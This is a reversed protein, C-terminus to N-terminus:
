KFRLRLLKKIREWMIRRLTWCIKKAQEPDIDVYMYEGFTFERNIVERPFYFIGNDGITDGNSLQAVLYWEGKGTRLPCDPQHGGTATFNECNCRSIFKQGYLKFAHPYMVTGKEKPIIGNEANTWNSNWRAGTKISRKAARNAWLAARFNDFTDFAGDVKFYSKKRHKKANEEFKGIEWNKWNAIFNRDKEGLKYPNFVQELFGVSVAVKCATRLDAGWSVWDGKMKKVQSFFYEPSLIVGEQDESVACSAFAVCMDSDFQDKIGLPEAVVFDEQPLELMAGLKTLSFDRKDKPLPLLGGSIKNKM